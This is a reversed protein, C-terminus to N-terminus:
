LLLVIPEWESVGSNVHPTQIASDNTKQTTHLPRNNMEKYKNKQTLTNDTRQIVVKM